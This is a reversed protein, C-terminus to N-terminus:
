KRRRQYKLNLSENFSILVHLILIFIQYTNISLSPVAARSDATAPVFLCFSVFCLSLFSLPAALVFGSFHPASCRPSFSLLLLTRVSSQTPQVLTM